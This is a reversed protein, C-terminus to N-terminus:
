GAIQSFGALNDCLINMFQQQSWILSFSHKPKSVSNSKETKVWHCLCFHWLKPPCLRLKQKASILFLASILPLTSNPQESSFQQQMDWACQQLTRNQESPMLLLGKPDGTVGVQKGPFLVQPAWTPRPSTLAWCSIVYLFFLSNYLFYRWNKIEETQQWPVDSWAVCSGEKRRKRTIIRIAAWNTHAFIRRGM